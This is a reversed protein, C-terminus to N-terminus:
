DLLKLQKLVREYREEEKLQNRIYASIAHENTKGITEAYYSPSWLKGGWFYKKRIDPHRSFFERASISKLIRMCESVSMTPELAVLAHVHDPPIELEQMEIDHDFAVKELIAKLDHRQPEVFVAHRYKPTWVLHYQLKYIHHEARRMEM